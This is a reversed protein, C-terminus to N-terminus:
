REPDTADGIMQPGSAPACHQFWRLRRFPAAAAQWREGAALLGADGFVLPMRRREWPAIGADQLLHKLSQSPRGAALRLREGGRRNRVILALPEAPPPDLALTGLGRPLALPARGDWPLEWDAVPPQPPLLHVRGRHRRLEAGTWRIALERDGRAGFLERPLIALTRRPPMPLGRQKADQRLVEALLAPDLKALEALDLGGDDGRLRRLKSRASRIFSTSARRALEASRLLNDVAGPWHAALEPLISQRLRNRVLDLDANSPDDVHVLRETRAYDALAARSVALLPRAIRLSGLRSRDRMGGLADPGAGRLLRLLVTEVQDDRHQATLLIEDAGVRAAFAAYRAARAAGERGLGRHAAVDVRVVDCDIDLGACHQQVHEAWRQSAPHLGHDIHIVRLGRSRATASHALLHLLVTSDLGGSCALVLRLIGLRELASDVATQLDASLRTM